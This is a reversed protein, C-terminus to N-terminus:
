PVWIAGEPLPWYELLPTPPGDVEDEYDFLVCFYRKGDKWVVPAFDRTGCWRVREDVFM